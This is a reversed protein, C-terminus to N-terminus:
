FVFRSFYYESELRDKVSSRWLFDIFIKIPSLSVFSIKHSPYCGVFWHIKFSLISRSHWYNPCLFSRLNLGRQVLSHVNSVLLLLWRAEKKLFAEMSITYILKLIYSSMLTTLTRCRDSRTVLFIRFYWQISAKNGFLFHKTFCSIINNIIM